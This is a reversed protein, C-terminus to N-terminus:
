FLSPSCMSCICCSEGASYGPDCCHHQLASQSPGTSKGCLLGPAQSTLFMLHTGKYPSFNFTGIFVYRAKIKFRSYMLSSSSFNQERMSKCEKWLDFTLLIAVWYNLATGSTETIRCCNVYFPVSFIEKQSFTHQETTLAAPNEVHIWM